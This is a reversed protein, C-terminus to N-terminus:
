KKLNVIRVNLDIMLDYMDKKKAILFAKNFYKLASIKDGKREYANGLNAYAVEYDPNFKIANKFEIIANDLKDLFVYAMGKYIYATGSMKTYCRGTKDRMIAESFSRIAKRYDRLYNMYVIGEELFIRASIEVPIFVGLGEMGELYTTSNTKGYDLAYQLPTKGSNSKIYTIANHDYLYSVCMTRNNKAAYHLPTLGSNDTINVSAGKKILLILMQLNGKEAAYHIPAKNNESKDRYDIDAGQEIDVKM